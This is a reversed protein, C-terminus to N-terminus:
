SADKKFLVVSGLLLKCQGPYPCMWGMVGSPSVQDIVVMMITKMVVMMVVKKDGGGGYGGDRDFKTVVVVGVM